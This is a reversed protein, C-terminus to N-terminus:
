LRYPLVQVSACTESFSAVGEAGKACCPPPKRASEAQAQRLNTSCTERGSRGEDEIATSGTAVTECVADNAESCDTTRPNDVRRAGAFAATTPRVQAARAEISAAGGFAIPRGTPVPHCPCPPCLATRCGVSSPPPSLPLRSPLLRRGPM